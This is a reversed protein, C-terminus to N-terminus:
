PREVVLLYTLARNGDDVSLIISKEWWDVLDERHALGKYTGALDCGTVALDVAVVSYRGDILSFRGSQVCSREDSGSFSGDTKIVWEGDTPSGFYTTSSPWTGALDELPTAREYLDQQYHFTFFGYDGWETGWRGELTQREAIAGQVFLSTTPGSFYEVGHPAIDVGIGLFLDGDTTM